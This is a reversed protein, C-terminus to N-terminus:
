DAGACRDVGLTISLEADDALPFRTTAVSEEVEVVLPDVTRGVTLRHRVHRFSGVGATTGWAPNAPDYVQRQDLLPRGGRVVRLHTELRGPLENSRGLAVEDNFELRATPALTISTTQLHNGEAIVLLPQGLWRLHGGDAVDIELHQSSRAGSPAPFVMTAAIAEVCLTAGPGVRVSMTLEDGGVPGAASGLMSVHQGSGAAGLRTERLAM